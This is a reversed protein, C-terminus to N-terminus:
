AAKLCAPSSHEVVNKTAVDCVALPVVGDQDTFCEGDNHSRVQVTTSGTGIM